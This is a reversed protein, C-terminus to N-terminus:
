WFVRYGVKQLKICMRFTLRWRDVPESIVPKHWLAIRALKRFHSRDERFVKLLYYISWILRHTTRPIFPLSRSALSLRNTLQRSISQISPGRGLHSPLHLASLNPSYVIEWNDKALRLAIEAEEHAYFFSSDFGGVSMIATRRVLFCAGVFYGCRRQDEIRVIRRFPFEHPLVSGDIRSILGAVVALKANSFFNELSASLDTEQNLVADDDLFLIFDAKSDALLLNRGGCVGLNEDSRILRAGQIPQIPTSSGNDLVVVATLGAAICSQVASQVESPRNYCIIAVEIMM